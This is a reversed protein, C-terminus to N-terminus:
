PMAPGEIEAPEGSEDQCPAEGCCGCQALAKRFAKTKERVPSSLFPSKLAAYNTARYMKRRAKHIEVQRFM